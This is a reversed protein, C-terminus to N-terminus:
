YGFLAELPGKLLPVQFWIEFMAFLVASTGQAVAACLAYSFKGQWRMFVAILVAGAVYIGLWQMALVFALAPFFMASVLKIETVSVFSKAKGARWAQVLNIVCSIALLLGVYFPFYGAEPGSSGWGAGMRRSDFMVLAAFLLLAVSVIVELTRNSAASTEEPESM